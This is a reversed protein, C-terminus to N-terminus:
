PKNLVLDLAHCGRYHPGASRLHSLLPAEACGGEELCDALISLRVPDLTGDARREAYAALALGLAEASWWPPLHEHYGKGKCDGCTGQGDSTEDGTGRCGRCEVRQKFAPPRWPNGVVDLIAHAVRPGSEYSGSNRFEAVCAYAVGADLGLVGVSVGGREMGIAAAVDALTGEGDACREAARYVAEIAADGDPHQMPGYARCCAVGLLRLRRGGAVRPRQRLHRLMAAVDNGALWQGETIDTMLLAELVDLQPGTWDVATLDIASDRLLEVPLNIIGADARRAPGRDTTM